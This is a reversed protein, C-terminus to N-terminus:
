SENTRALILRAAACRCNGARSGIETQFCAGAPITPYRRGLVETYQETLANIEEHLSAIRDELTPVPKKNAKAM